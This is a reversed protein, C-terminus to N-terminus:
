VFARGLRYKVQPRFNEVFIDANKVLKLLIDRGREKQLNLTMSKKNRNGYLFYPGEGGIFPGSKRLMDGAQPEEIKIVEAGLDGLLLICYPGSLASTADVVKIGSLPQSM